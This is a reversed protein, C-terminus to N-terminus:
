KNKLKSLAVKALDIVRFIKFTEKQENRFGWDNCARQNENASITKSGEALIGVHVGNTIIDGPLYKIDKARGEGIKIVLKVKEDFWETTTPPRDLKNQIFLIPHKWSNLRNPTGIDVGCSM